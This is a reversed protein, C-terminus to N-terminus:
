IKGDVLNKVLNYKKKELEAIRLMKKIEWPEPISETRIGIFANLLKSIRIADDQKLFEAINLDPEGSTERWVEYNQENVRHVTYRHVM